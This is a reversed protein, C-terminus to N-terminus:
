NKPWQSGKWAIYLGCFGAALTLYFMGILHTM